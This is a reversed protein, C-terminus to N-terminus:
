QYCISRQPCEDRAIRVAMRLPSCDSIGDADVREAIHNIGPLEVSLIELSHHLPCVRNGNVTDDPVSRSGHRRCILAFFQILPVRQESLSNTLLLPETKDLTTFSLKRDLTDMEKCRQFTNHRLSIVRKHMRVNVYGSRRIRHHHRNQVSRHNTRAPAIIGAIRDLDLMRIVNHGYVFM